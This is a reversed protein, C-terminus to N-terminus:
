SDPLLVRTNPLPSVSTSGLSTRRYCIDSPLVSRPRDYPVARVEFEQIRAPRVPTLHIMCILEGHEGPIAWTVDAPTTASTIDGIPRAPGLPGIDAVFQEIEARRAAISRDVDVNEAFIEAALQDDCKRILQEASQRLEVTSPWLQVTRAATSHRALVRFLAEHAMAAPDGRHSNTLVVIGHGSDPHWIMYLKYGPLGGGHSVITGRYIDETIRM